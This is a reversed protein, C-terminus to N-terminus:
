NGGLIWDNNIADKVFNIEAKFNWCLNVSMKKNVEFIDQKVMVM